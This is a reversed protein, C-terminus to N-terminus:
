KARNARCTFVKNFANYKIMKLVTISTKLRLLYGRTETQEYMFVSISNMITFVNVYDDDHFQAFIDRWQRNISM